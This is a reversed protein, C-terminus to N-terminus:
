DDLGEEIEDGADDIKDGLKEAPTQKKKVCGESAAGLLGVMCASLVLSAVRNRVLAM